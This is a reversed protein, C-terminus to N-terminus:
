SEEDVDVIDGADAADGDDDTPRAFEVQVRGRWLDAWTLLTTGGATGLRVGDPGVELVRGTVEAATGGRHVEAIVLRGRARSWHRRETLPRDVGPSSVELVYPSGGLVDSADLADSVARSVDAVTDLDLGGEADEPLDVVVRVVRRRGAPTVTVDELVLGAGDVVPALVARVRASPAV